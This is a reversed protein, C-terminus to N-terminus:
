VLWELAITIAGFTIDSEVFEQNELKGSFTPDTLVRAIRLSDSNLGITTMGADVLVARARAIDIVMAALEQNVNYSGSTSGDIASRLSPSLGSKDGTLQARIIQGMADIDHGGKEITPVDSLRQGRGVAYVDNGETTRFTTYREGLDTRLGARKRDTPRDGPDNELREGSHSRWRGDAGKVIGTGMSELKSMVLAASAKLNRLGQEQVSSRNDIAELTAIEDGIDAAAEQLQKQSTLSAIRSPSYLDM